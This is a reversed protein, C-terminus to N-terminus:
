RKKNRHPKTKDVGIEERFIVNVGITVKPWFMEPGMSRNIDEFPVFFKCKQYSNDLWYTKYCVHPLAALM